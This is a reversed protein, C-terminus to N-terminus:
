GNMLEDFLQEYQNACSEISLNLKYMQRLSDKSIMNKNAIARKLANLYAEDSFNEAVFGNKGDEVVDNFGSVPTGVPICGCALAEILTIPMGEFDSSLTFFDSCSLYDVVNHRQGLFYINRNAQSVVPMIEPADYGNGIVLLVVDEGSDILQNFCRILRPINKQPTCRAIITFVNASERKKYQEIETKVRNYMNTVRVSERGNYILKIPPVSYVKEISKANQHSIAIQSLLHFNLCVKKILFRIKGCNKESEAQNHCTVVYKKKRDFLLSLLCFFTSASLHLHVIDCKIQKVAKYVKYFTSINFNGLGLNIVKVKSILDDKYFGYNKLSFDKMTLLTVEHGDIAMQNCLDVVFREAGGSGLTPLVELIKM